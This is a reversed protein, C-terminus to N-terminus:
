EAQDDPDAGAPRGRWQGLNAQRQAEDRQLPTLDALDRVEAPKSVAPYFYSVRGKRDTERVAGCSCVDRTDRKPVSDWDHRVTLGSKHVMRAGGGAPRQLREAVEEWQELTLLVENGRGSAPMVGATVLRDYVRELRERRADHWAMFKQYDNQSESMVMGERRQLDRFRDDMVAVCKDWGVSMGLNFVQAAAARMRREWGSASNGPYYERAVALVDDVRQELNKSVAAWAGESVSVGGLQRRVHQLNAIMRDVDEIAGAVDHELLRVDNLTWGHEDLSACLAEADIESMVEFRLMGAERPEYEPPDAEALPDSFTSYGRYDPRDDARWDTSM